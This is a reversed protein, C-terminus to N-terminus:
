GDGINFLNYEIYLEKGETLIKNLISKILVIKADGSEAWVSGFCLISVIILLRM